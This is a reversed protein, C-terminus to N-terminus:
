TLLSEFRDIDAGEPADERALLAINNAYLNDEAEVRRGEAQEANREQRRGPLDCETNQWQRM